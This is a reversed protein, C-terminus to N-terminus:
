TKKKIQRPGNVYKWGSNPNKLLRMAEFRNKAKGAKVADVISDFLQGDVTIPSYGYPIRKIIIYEPVKNNLKNRIQTESEKTKESAEKISQFEETWRLHVYGKIKCIVRENIKNRPTDPHLNYLNTQQYTRILENEKTLRDNVNSWQPGLELVTASFEQSGFQNWDQQLALCDHRNSRLSESHKALRALVNQAEGIYKKDDRPAHCGQKKVPSKM